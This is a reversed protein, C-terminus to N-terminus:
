RLAAAAVIEAPGDAQIIVAAGEAGAAPTVLEFPGTARWDAVHEWSTVVNRYTIEHGANEGREIAVTAKDRYRVLQVRFSRDTPPVAVARIVIRDGVRTLTLRVTRPVAAHARITAAVAGADNGVLRDIGGVVMQPTYIMRDGAARAYSKQRATFAPNAFKDKWGLYDWYDVHMSLALVRPDSMMQELLADAPPCSSCGQSTYLEVVVAGGTDATIDATQAAVITASGAASMVLLISGARLARAAKVIQRMQIDWEGHNGKWRALARDGQWDLNQSPVFRHGGHM